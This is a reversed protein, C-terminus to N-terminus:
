CFALGCTVGLSGTNARQRSESQFCEEFEFSYRFLNCHDYSYIM